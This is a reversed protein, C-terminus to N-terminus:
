ICFVKCTGDTTRCVDWGYDIGQWIHQLMDKTINAIAATILANLEYLTNVRQSYTQAKVYGWLFLGCCSLHAVCNTRRRKREM